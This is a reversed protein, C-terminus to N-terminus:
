QVDKKHFFECLTQPTDNSLVAAFGQETSMTVDDHM